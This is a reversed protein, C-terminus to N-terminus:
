KKKKFNHYNQWCIAKNPLNYKYLHESDPYARYFIDTFLRWFSTPHSKISCSQTRWLTFLKLWSESAKLLGFSTAMCLVSKPAKANKGYNNMPHPSVTGVHHRSLHRTFTIQRTSHLSCFLFLCSSVLIFIDPSTKM